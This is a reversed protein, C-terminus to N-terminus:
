QQMLIGLNKWMQCRAVENSAINVMRTTNTQFRLRQGGEIGYPEWTPSRSLKYRNPDLSRIFSIWYNMVYEGVQKDYTTYPCKDKTECGDNADPGFIGKKEAVHPTGWGRKANDQEYVDYHYHWV